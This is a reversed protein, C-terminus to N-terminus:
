GSGCGADCDDRCPKGSAMNQFEELGEKDMPDGDYTPEIGYKTAIAKLIPAGYNEYMDDRECWLMAEEDGLLWMWSMYHSISRSASLGKHDLAKMIAFGLYNGMDRRVNVDTAPRVENYDAETTGEKLLGEPVDKFPLYSMLTGIEFGFLDGARRDQVREAIETTTRMPPTYCRSPYFDIPVEHFSSAAIRLCLSTMTMSWRGCQRGSTDEETISYNQQIHEVLGLPDTPGFERIALKVWKITTVMM